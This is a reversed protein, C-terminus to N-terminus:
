ERYVRSKLELWARAFLIQFCGDLTVNNRLCFPHSSVSTSNRQFFSSSFHRADQVRELDPRGPLGGGSSSLLSLLVSRVNQRHCKRAMAVQFLQMGIQNIM